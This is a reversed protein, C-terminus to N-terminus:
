KPVAISPQIWDDKFGSPYSHFGTQRLAKLQPGKDDEDDAGPLRASLRGGYGNAVGPSGNVPKKLQARFIAADNGRSVHHLDGMATLNGRLQGEM